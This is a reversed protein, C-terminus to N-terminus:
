NTEEEALEASTNIITLVESVLIVAAMAMGGLGTDGAAGVVVELAQVGQLLAGEVTITSDM